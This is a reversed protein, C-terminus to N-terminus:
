KQDCAARAAQWLATRDAVLNASSAKPWAGLTVIVLKRAPDILMSQGFIGLAAYSGDDYTWWQYGYGRGAQGIPQQTRTADVFWGETAIGKGGLRVLEGLRGWDRLTASIGSGGYEKGNEAIWYADSEMGFRQWIRQQVLQSLSQGTARRVLAGTLDTEGTKYVWHTGPASERPLHRMYETVTDKGRQVPTSYLRVNDSDPADYDEVWRVGSTMTLLQRITVGDYASGRMEPLYQTVPDDVGHISGDRLAIGVLTSTVSKTMSFSTWRTSRDAGLAYSELRVKGDQLVLVGALRDRQMLAQLSEGNVSLTLPKGNPLPYVKAGHAIRNVPFLRDMHAFRAEREAQSWQLDEALRQGVTKTQSIAPTSAPATTQAFCGALISSGILAITALRALARLTTFDGPTFLRRACTCPM